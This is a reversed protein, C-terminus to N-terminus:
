IAQPVVIIRMKCLNSALGPGLQLRVMMDYQVLLLISKMNCRGKSAYCPCCALQLLSLLIRPELKLRMLILQHGPFLWMAEIFRIKLM